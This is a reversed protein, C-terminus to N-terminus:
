NTPWRPSSSRPRTTKISKSGRLDPRDQDTTAPKIIQIQGASRDGADIWVLNISKRGLLDKFSAIEDVSGHAIFCAVDEPLLKGETDLVDYVFAVPGFPWLILLPRAGEKPRREFGEWWDCASAAFSLGPKQIQLLM